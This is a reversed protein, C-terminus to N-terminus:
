CIKITSAMFPSVSADICAHFSGRFSLHFNPVQLGSAQLSVFKYIPAAIDLRNRTAEMVASFVGPIALGVVTHALTIGIAVALWWWEGELISFLDLWTVEEGEEIGKVM